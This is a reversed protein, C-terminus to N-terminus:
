RFLTELYKIPYKTLVKFLNTDIGNEKCARLVELNLLIKSRIGNTSAGGNQMRVLVEPIHEYRLQHNKFIRAIYEFDGAIRYDKNFNGVLDVVSRKLFLAPHAPMWGWALRSPKFRDSRYRRTTREPSASNFFEVDGMLIDLKTDRMKKEVLSLIGSSPYYDDANLTCIIEGSAVLLGKNIADYIGADPGSSFYELSSRHREIVDLTGDTSGGDILIHEVNSWDQYAVSKLTRQLTKVNNLCVTIVSIKM